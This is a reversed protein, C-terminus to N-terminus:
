CLLTMHIPKFSVEALCLPNNPAVAVHNSYYVTQVQAWRSSGQPYSDGSCTVLEPM